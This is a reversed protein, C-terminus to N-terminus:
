TRKLRILREKRGERITLLRDASVNLLVDLGGGLWRVEIRDVKQRKGLGFHLRTGFHSQYGRGSHVEARQILDGAIVTVQAGVGDRNSKVGQLRVDIWHNGNATENRLLTPERRSNLVVVDIRGDNDLDDFATGWKVYPLSGAGAGTRLTFDEFFGNGLNKYLVPLENQYDTMFLDPWGDRDYDGCDAGMSGNAQGYYNYAVGRVLGSEVFKGTGGNLFYVDTLGDGDYDFTALGSAVTEVIYRHGGSGDTHRFAIGSERTADRLQIATQAGAASVLLLWTLCAGAARAATRDVGKAIM